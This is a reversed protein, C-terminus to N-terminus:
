VFWYISDRRCGELSLAYAAARVTGGQKYHLSAGVDAAAANIEVIVQLFKV